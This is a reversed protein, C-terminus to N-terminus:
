RFLPTAQMDARRVGDKLRFPTDVGGYNTKHNLVPIKREIDSLQSWARPQDMSGSWKSRTPYWRKEIFDVEDNGMAEEPSMFGFHAGLLLRFFPTFKTWRTLPDLGLMSIKERTSRFVQTYTTHKLKGFAAVLDAEPIRDAQLDERTRKLGANFLLRLLHEMVAMQSEFEWNPGELSPKMRRSLTLPTTSPMKVFMGRILEHKGTITDPDMVQKIIENTFAHGLGHHVNCYMSNGLRVKPCPRNDTTIAVCKLSGSVQRLINLRDALNRTLPPQVDEVSKEGEEDDEASPDSAFSKLTESWISDQDWEHGDNQNEYRTSNQLFSELECADFIHHSSNAFLEVDEDIMFSDMAQNSGRSAAQNIIRQSEKGLKIGTMAQYYKLSDAVKIEEIWNKMRKLRFGVKEAMNSRRITRFLKVDWGFWRMMKLSLDGMNALMPINKLSENGKEKISDLFSTLWLVGNILTDSSGDEDRDLDRLYTTALKMLDEALEARRRYIDSNAGDQKIVNHILPGAM